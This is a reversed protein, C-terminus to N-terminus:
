PQPSFQDKKASLTEKWHKITDTEIPSTVDFGLRDFTAQPPVVKRGQLMASRVHGIAYLRDGCYYRQEFYIYKQDWSILQIELTVKAFPKFERIYTIEQANIVAQYGRSLFRWLFQNELMWGLRGVDGFSLYRAATLHINFDMDHPWVRFQRTTTGLLSGRQRRFLSSLLALLMRGILSM